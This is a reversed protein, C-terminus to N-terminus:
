LQSAAVWIHRPVRLSVRCSSALRGSVPNFRASLVADAGWSFHSIPESREHDWIDV